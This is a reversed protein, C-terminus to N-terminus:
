RLQAQVMVLNLLIDLKEELSNFSPRELFRSSVSSSPRRHGRSEERPRKARLPENGYSSDSDFSRERSRGRSRKWSKPRSHKEM